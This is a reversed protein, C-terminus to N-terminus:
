EVFRFARKIRRHYKPLDFHFNGNAAIMIQSIAPIHLMYRIQFKVAFNRGCNVSIWKIEIIVDRIWVHSKTM